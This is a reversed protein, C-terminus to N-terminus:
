TLTQRVYTSALRRIESREIQPLTNWLISVEEWYSIMDVHTLPYVLGFDTLCITERMQGIILHTLDNEDRMVAWNIGAILGYSWCDYRPWATIVNDPHTMAEAESHTFVLETYFSNFNPSDVNIRNFITHFSGVVEEDDVVIRFDFWMENAFLLQNMMVEARQHHRTTITRQIIVVTSAVMILVTVAILIPKKNSKMKKMLDFTLNSIFARFFDKGTAFLILAYVIFLAIALQTM